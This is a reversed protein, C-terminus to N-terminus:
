KFSPGQVWSVATYREGSVVPTVKHSIFSPFIIVSGKLGRVVAEKKPDLELILDGGEYTDPDSLFLVSSLKRQMGRENPNGLDKHFDYHHGVTYRGVQVAEPVDVLYNWGAQTNADLSLAFLICGMPSNWPQWVVDTKRIREDVVLSDTEGQFIKGLSADSFDVEKLLADCVAHPIAKEYLWYTWRVM